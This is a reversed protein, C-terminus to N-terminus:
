SGSSNPVVIQERCARGYREAVLFLALCHFNQLLCCTHSNCGNARPYRDCPDRKPLSNDLRLEYTDQLQKGDVRLSQRLMVTRNKASGLSYWNNTSETYIPGCRSLRRDFGIEGSRGYPAYSVDITVSGGLPTARIKVM